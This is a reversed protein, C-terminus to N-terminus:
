RTTGGVTLQPGRYPEPAPRTEIGSEAIWRQMAEAEAPTAFHILKFDVDAPLWGAVAYWGAPGAIRDAAAKMEAADASRFPETRHLRAIHPLERMRIQHSNWSRKPRAM